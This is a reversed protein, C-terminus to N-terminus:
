EDGSNEVNLLCNTSAESAAQGTSINFLFNLDLSRDVPNINQKIAHKLNLLQTTSKKIRNKELDATIDQNQRLGAQQLVRTIIKSRMSHSKCWRQRAPISNTFHVIGTLRSAADANITQELSLDIPIKSFQKDTRKIGFSGRELQVNLGPHTENVSEDCEVAVKQTQHM